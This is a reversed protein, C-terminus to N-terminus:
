VAAANCWKSISGRFDDASKVGKVDIALLAFQPNRAVAQQADLADLIRRGGGGSDRLV